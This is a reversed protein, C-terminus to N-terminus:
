LFAEAIDLVSLEGVKEAIEGRVHFKVHSLPILPTDDKVCAVM